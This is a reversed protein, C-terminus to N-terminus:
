MYFCPSHLVSHLDDVECLLCSWYNLQIWFSDKDVYIVRDQGRIGLKVGDQSKGEKFTFWCRQIQMNKLSRHAVVTLIFIFDLVTLSRSFRFSGSFSAFCFHGSECGNKCPIFFLSEGPTQFATHVFSLFVLATSFTLHKM